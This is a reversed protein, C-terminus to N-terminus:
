KYVQEWAITGMLKHQKSQGPLRSSNMLMFLLQHYEGVVRDGM